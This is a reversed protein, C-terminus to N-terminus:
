RVLRIRLHGRVALVASEGDAKDARPDPNKQNITTEKKTSKM